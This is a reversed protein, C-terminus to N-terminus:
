FKGTVKKQTGDSKVLTATFADNGNWEIKKWVALRNGAPDTADSNTTDEGLGVAKENTLDKTSDDTLSYGIIPALDCGAGGCTEPIFLAKTYVANWVATGNPPFHAIAQTTHDKVKFLYSIENTPMGAGCSGDSACSPKFSIFVFGQDGVAEAKLFVPSTAADTVHGSAVVFSQSNIMAALEYDGICYSIDAAPNGIREVGKKIEGSCRYEFRVDSGDVSLTKEAVIASAVPNTKQSKDEMPSSPSALQKQLSTIQTQQMYVVIGLGIAAVIALATLAKM